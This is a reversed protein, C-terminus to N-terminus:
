TTNWHGDMFIHPQSALCSGGRTTSASINKKVIPVWTECNYDQASTNGPLYVELMSANAQEFGSEPFWEQFIRSWLNIIAHPLPGVSTFVAWTTAPIVRTDFETGKSNNVDEIAVMYSLQKMEDVEISIGLMNQRNDLARIKENTGDATCKDWFNSIGMHHEGRNTSLRTLKGIVQFAEKRIIRYDM